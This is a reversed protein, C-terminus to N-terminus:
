DAVEHPPTAGYPLFYRTTTHTQGTQENIITLTQLMMTKNPDDDVKTQLVKIDTVKALGNVTPMSTQIQLHGPHDSVALSKKPRDGPPLYETQETGLPLDVVLDANVRSRKIIKVRDETLTITHFTDYEQEGKEHAKIALENVNMAELYGRMSWEGRAKDLIWCGNLSTPPPPVDAPVDAEKSAAAPAATPDESTPAPTMSSDEKPPSSAASKPEPDDVEMATSEQDNTSSM